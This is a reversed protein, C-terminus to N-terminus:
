RAGPPRTKTFAKWVAPLTALAADHRAALWRRAPGLAEEHAPLLRGFLTEAIVIDNLRGLVDQVQALARVYDCSRKGPHLGCFFEAAYRLKKAAIRTAHRQPADSWALRAGRKLLRKHYRALMKDAFEGLPAAQAQRWREEQLWAGLRLQLRGYRPSLVVRRAARRAQAARRTVAAQLADLGAPADGEARLAPLTQRALVEWDRVAGLERAIWKLEPQCGPCAIVPSFLSLAVRLRRLGVRMQHVFEPDDGALVGAENGQIQALCAAVIRALGEGVSMQASVEPPQAKVPERRQGGAWLAYGRQAKSADFPRLAITDALALAFDFLVGPEGALLELEIESIPERGRGGRVEGQDLALEIESGDPFALQWTTRRFRTTFVPGLRAALAPDRLLDACAPDAGVRQALAELDPRDGRVPSEWEQRTHLGAHVGGDGKFTQVRRRGERRVRLAAGHRKLWLDPTDFYASVLLRTAPPAVAHARLLEHRRLRPVDAPDILLKLEVETPM